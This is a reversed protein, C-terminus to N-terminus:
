LQVYPQVLPAQRFWVASGHAPTVQLLGGAGCQVLPVMIVRYKEGPM